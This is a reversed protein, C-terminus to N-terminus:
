IMCRRIGPFFLGSYTYLRGYDSPFLNRCNNKPPSDMQQQNGRNIPVYELIRSNYPFVISHDM